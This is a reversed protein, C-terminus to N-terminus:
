NPANQNQPYVFSCQQTGTDLIGFTECQAMVAADWLVNFGAAQVPIDRWFLGTANTMQEDGSSGATCSDLRLPNSGRRTLTYCGGPLLAGTTMSSASYDDGDANPTGRVFSLRAPDGMTNEGTNQIVLSDANYTLILTTPPVLVAGSRAPGCAAVALLLMVWLLGGLIFKRQM